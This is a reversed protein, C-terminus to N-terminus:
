GRSGRDYDDRIKFFFRRKNRNVSKGKFIEVVVLVDEEVFFVICLYFSWM